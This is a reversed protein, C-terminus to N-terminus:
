ETGGYKLANEILNNVITEYIFPDIDYEMQAPIMVEISRNPHIKRYRDVISMTFASIDTQEKHLILKRNVLRSANLINDIIKELRQNEQLAKTILEAKKDEDFYGKQLTQLYVK